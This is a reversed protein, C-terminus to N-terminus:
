LNAVRSSLKVATSTWTTTRGVKLQVATLTKQGPTRRFWSGPQDGDSDAIVTELEVVSSIM